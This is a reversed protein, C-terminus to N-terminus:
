SLTWKVAQDPIFHHRTMFHNHEKKNIMKWYRFDASHHFINNFKKILVEISTL